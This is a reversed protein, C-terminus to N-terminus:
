GRPTNPRVLARLLTFAAGLAVLLGIAAGILLVFYIVEGSGSADINQGIALLAICAILGVLLFGLPRRVPSM